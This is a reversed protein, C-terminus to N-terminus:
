RALPGRILQGPLPGTREGELLVLDGSVISAHMGVSKQRLRKAGGPVDNVLRPLEPQIREPDFVVLDAVPPSGASWGYRKSSHCRRSRGSGTPKQRVWYARLYTQISADAIQSQHAGADSFTMVCRPHTLAPLIESDDQDFVPQFFFQGLETDLALDIMLEVPECGRERAVEGVSRHPPLPSSYIKMSDYKPAEAEGGRRAAYNGKSAAEVLRQRIAPDSLAQLQWEWPLARVPRWEDISDFPLQTKFSLMINIERCTTMGFM